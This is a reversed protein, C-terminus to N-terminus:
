GGLYAKIVEPNALVDRGTGQVTLRGLEIVYARSSIELARRANQEVLM